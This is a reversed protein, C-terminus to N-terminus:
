VVVVMHIVYEICGFTQSSLYFFAPLVLLAWLADECIYGCGDTNQSGARHSISGGFSLSVLPDTERVAHSTTAVPHLQPWETWSSFFVSEAPVTKGM